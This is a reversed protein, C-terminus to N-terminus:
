AVREPAARHRQLREHARYLAGPIAGRVVHRSIVPVEETLLDRKYDRHRGRGALFDFHRLHAKCADEIAYGFHLLGPSLGQARTPDFGSQLYYVTGSREICYLISITHEGDALRSLRLEGSESLRATMERHFEQVHELPAGSGWRAASLRWLAKLTDPVEAKSAYTFRPNTLKRRQNFLRRRLDPSLGALFDEFSEPLPACWGTLPDVERVFAGRGLRRFALEAAVSTRKICCLALEDWIRQQALWEGIAQVVDARYDEAALIDPYDSFFARADRWALGMLELRRPKLIKRVRVTHSYFPALGILREGAYVAVIHATAALPRAHHKWWGWQWEWSMFLPDAASEALLADWAARSAAFEETSWARVHVPGARRPEACPLPTATM